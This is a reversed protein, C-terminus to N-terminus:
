GAIELYLSCALAQTVEDQTIRAEAQLKWICSCALAQTVEDQTIRAEAQL